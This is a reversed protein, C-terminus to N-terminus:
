SINIELKEIQKVDKLSSVMGIVTNKVFNTVFPNLQLTDNEVTIEVTDDDIFLNINHEGGHGKLSDLIGKIVSEIFRQVFEDIEVPIYNVSLKVGKSAM